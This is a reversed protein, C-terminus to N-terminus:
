WSSSTRVSLVPLLCLPMVQTIQSMLVGPMSTRGISVM